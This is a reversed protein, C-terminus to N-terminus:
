EGKIDGIKITPVDKIHRDEHTLVFGGSVNDLQKETIEIGTEEATHSLDDPSQPQEPSQEAKPDNM